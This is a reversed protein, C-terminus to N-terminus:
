FLSQQINKTNNSEKQQEKIKKIFPFKTIIEERNGIITIWLESAKEKKNWPNKGCLLFQTSKKPSEHFEYGEKEFASILVERSFEFSGTISFWVKEQKEEKTKSFVCKIGREELKTLLSTNNEDSFFYELSLLTKEGIGYINGLEEKNWLSERLEHLSSIKKLALFKEIDQAVKKGINPIGLANILRWVENHKSHNLEKILEEIRKEWFWPIKRLLVQTEVEELKYLDAGDKVIGQELLVEIVSEGFWLINMAEKSVFHILKEKMQAKCHTNTCYYLADINIIPANCSPCFLPASIKEESGTRREKIVSTIYPIVEWSRQIRVFDHLKIDKENIFDFNHLSVRSIEVGSLQVPQLNAVPTIIGTIWVQFDVSIIQTSAQQAPFKYAIAWKPHHQTTGLIKRLSVSKEEKIKEQDKDILSFLAQSNEENELSIKDSTNELLKIVLGDFDYDLENLKQKTENNTCINQIGNITQKWLNLDVQSFGLDKLHPEFKEGKENEAELLDYIFCVLKRKKVEGSDLLKISGAAANRTNAFPELGEEERQKNLLQLVSKPMMIEGRVRLIKLNQSLIKPINDIMKVNVTIDDGVYGDGRTIAQKFIGEEYILEVSLGDYKPEVGYYYEYVGEKMLIKQIREDFIKLDEANYSNELSLLPTKHEAKKFGDSIQGILGQTPSNSSIIQPYETEIKKLLSFLQDYDFDSIIPANKLYYLHNHEVLCDILMQYVEKVNPITSLDTQLFTQLYQTQESLNM